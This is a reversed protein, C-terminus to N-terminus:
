VECCPPEPRTPAPLGKVKRAAVRRMNRYEESTAMKHNHRTKMKARQEPRKSYSRANANSCPRCWTGNKVVDAFLDLHNFSECKPCWKLKSPDVGLIRASDSLAAQRLDRQRPADRYTIHCGKCWSGNKGRSSPSFAESNLLKRCKSCQQMQIVKSFNASIKKIIYCRKSDHAFNRGTAGLAQRM